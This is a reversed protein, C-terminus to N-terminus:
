KKFVTEEISRVSERDPKCKKKKELYKMYNDYFASSHSRLFEGLLPWHSDIEMKVFLHFDTRVETLDDGYTTEMFNRLEGFLGSLWCDIDMDFYYGAGYEPHLEARPKQIKPADPGLVPVAYIGLADAVEMKSIKM